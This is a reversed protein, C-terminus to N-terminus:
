SRAVVIGGGRLRRGIAYSVSAAAITWPQRILRYREARLEPSEQWYDIDWRWHKGLFAKSHNIGMM